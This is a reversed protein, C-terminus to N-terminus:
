MKRLRERLDRALLPYEKECMDAYTHLAAYAFKDHELDLVFYFCHEHKGGSATSGDVREVKYKNENLPLIKEHDSM